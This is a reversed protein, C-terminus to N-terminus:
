TGDEQVTTDIPFFYDDTSVTWKAVGLVPDGINTGVVSPSVVVGISQINDAATITTSV